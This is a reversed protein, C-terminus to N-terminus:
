RKPARTELRPAISLESPVVSYKICAVIALCPVSEYELHCLLLIDNLSM